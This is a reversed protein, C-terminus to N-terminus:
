TVMDTDKIARVVVVMKTPQCAKGEEKECSAPSDLQVSLCHLKM